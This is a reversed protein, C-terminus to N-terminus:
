NKIKLKDLLDNWHKASKNLSAEYYDQLKQMSKETDDILVEIDNCIIPLFTETKKFSFKTEIDRDSIITQVIDPPLSSLITDSRLGHSINEFVMGFIMSVLGTQYKALNIAVVENEANILPGGSNGPHIAADFQLWGKGLEEVSTRSVVGSTVTIDFVGMPFGIAKVEDGLNPGEFSFKLFSENDAMELKFIALDLVKDSFIVKVDHQRSGEQVSVNNCSEIVHNATMYHNKSTFLFSSGIVFDYDSAFAMRANVVFFAVCIIKQLIVILKKM